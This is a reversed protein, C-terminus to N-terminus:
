ELRGRARMSRLESAIDRRAAHLRSYGTKLPCGVIATVEEMTLQEVEYLVFVARKEDSIRELIAMASELARSRELADHPTQATARELRTEDAPADVVHARRRAHKRRAHLAKRVCIGYLWTRVAGRGEYSGVRQHVVLFVEQVVDSLESDRVGLCRLARAVYAGHADFLAGAAARDIAAADELGAGLPLEDDLPADM